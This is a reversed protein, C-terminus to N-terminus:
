TLGLMTTISERLESPVFPKCIYENVEQLRGILRHTPESRATLILINPQNGNMKKLQKLVDWGHIDPLAIDLVVLDPDIDKVLALAEKGTKAHYLEIPLNKLTTQILEFIGQDDEVSIIRPIGHM